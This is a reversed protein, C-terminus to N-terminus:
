ASTAVTYVTASVMQFIVRARTTGIPDITDVILAGNKTATGADNENLYWIGDDDVGLAYRAWLNTAVLVHGATAQDELTGEFLQHPLAPWISIRNGQAIAAYNHGAEAAFAVVGTAAASAIGLGGLGGTDILASGRVVTTQTAAEAADSAISASSGAGLHPVIPFANSLLSGVAAM